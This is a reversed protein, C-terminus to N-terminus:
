DNVRFKCSEGDYYGLNVCDDYDGDGNYDMRNCYDDIDDGDSDWCGYDLDCYQTSYGNNQDYVYTDLYYVGSPLPFPLKPYPYWNLIPGDPHFWAFYWYDPSITQGGFDWGIVYSAPDGSYTTITWQILVETEVDVHFAVYLYVSDGQLTPWNTDGRRNLNGTYSTYASYVSITNPDGLYTDDQYSPLPRTLHPTGPKAVHPMVSKGPMKKNQTMNKPLPKRPIGGANAKDRDRPVRALGFTGNDYVVEAKRMDPPHKAYITTTVQGFVLLSAVLGLAVTKPRFFIMSEEKEKKTNCYLWTRIGCYMRFLRHLLVPM